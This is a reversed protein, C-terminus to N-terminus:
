IVAGQAEMGLGQLYGTGGAIAAGLVGGSANQMMRTQWETEHNVQDVNMALQESNRRNTLAMLHDNHRADYESHQQVIANSYATGRAAGMAEVQGRSIASKRRYIDQDHQLALQQETDKTILGQSQVALSQRAMKRNASKAQEEQAYKAVNAVVMLTVIDCM